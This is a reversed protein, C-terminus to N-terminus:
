SCTTIDDPVLTAVGSGRAKQLKQPMEIWQANADTLHLLKGLLGQNSYGGIQVVGNNSDAVMMGVYRALPLNPGDRWQSSGEELIEVSSMITSNYGGVVIVSLKENQQSTKIMACTHLKRAYKLQPGEIWNENQTNFFYTRGSEKGVDGQYGGIAFVTTSNFLVMCHEVITVPLTKTNQITWSGNNLTIFSSLHGNGYYGGSVFFNDSKNPYPSLTVAAFTRGSEMSSSKNWLNNEYTYCDKNYGDQHHGGCITPKKNLGLIGFAGLSIGLPFNALNQCTKPSTSELDIIEMETMGIGSSNHGVGVMLKTLGKSIILINLENYGSFIDM